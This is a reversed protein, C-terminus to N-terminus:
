EGRAAKSMRGISSADGHKWGGAPTPGRHSKPDSVFDDRFGSAMWEKQSSSWVSFMRAVEPDESLALRKPVLGRSFAWEVVFLPEGNGQPGSAENQAWESAAEEAPVM